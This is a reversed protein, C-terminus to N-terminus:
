VREHLRARVGARCRVCAARVCAPLKRGSATRRCCVSTSLCALLHPACARSHRRRGGPLTNDVALLLPRPKQLPRRQRRRYACACAGGGQGGGEARGGALRAEDYRYKRNYRMLHQQVLLEQIINNYFGPVPKRFAEYFRRKTDAVTPPNWPAAAGGTAAARGRETRWARSASRRARQAALLVKVCESGSMSRVSRQVSQV